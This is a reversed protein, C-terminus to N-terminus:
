PGPWNPGRHPTAGATTDTWLTRGSCTRPGVHNSPHGAERTCHIPGGGLVHPGEITATCSGPTPQTEDHCEAVHRDRAREASQRSSHDLSLWGDCTDTGWCRFVWVNEHRDNRYPQVVLGTTVAPMPKEQETLARWRCGVEDAHSGQHGPVLVCETRIASESFQPKLHGCHERPETAQTAASAPELAGLIIDSAVGVLLLADAKNAAVAQWRTAVERVRGLTAEARAARVIASALAERATALQRQTESEEAAELQEYLADLADSTITDVTHRDNM